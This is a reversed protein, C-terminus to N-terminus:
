GIRQLAKQQRAAVAAGSERRAMRRLVRPAFTVAVVAWVALVLFMEPYRWSQGVEIVVTEEPLLASRMGLGMWYMPFAQGIWQMWEALRTLPAFIGSIAALLGMPIMLIGAARPSTMLSGAIAGLAMTGALGLVLVGALVLASGATFVFGDLLFLSPVLVILLSVVTMGAVSVVKGFLYAGMGNPVAKARLLTGDEREVALLQAVGLVGSFLVTIALVGPMISSGISIETGPLKDGRLSVMVILFIAPSLLYGFVDQGNTLTQRFEIWGRILGARVIVARTSSM